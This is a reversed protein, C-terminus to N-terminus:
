SSKTEQCGEEQWIWDKNSEQEDFSQLSEEFIRPSYRSREKAYVPSVSHEYWDAFSGPVELGPISRVDVRRLGLDPWSLLRYTDM